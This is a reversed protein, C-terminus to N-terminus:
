EYLIKTQAQKKPQKKKSQLMIGVALRFGTWDILVPDNNNDILYSQSDYKTKGNVNLEFGGNVFFTFHKRPYQWQVGPEFTVGFANFSEGDEEVDDGVKTELNLDLMSVCLGFKAYASFGKDIKQTGRAGLGVRTLSLDTRVSGSFDAYHIRGRTFTYNVYGGITKKEKDISYALAADAQLSPPFSSVIEMPLFDASERLEEQFAKMDSMRYTGAVASIYLKSQAIASFQALM